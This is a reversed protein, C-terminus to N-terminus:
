VIKKILLNKPFNNLRHCKMHDVVEVQQQTETLLIHMHFVNKYFYHLYRLEYAKHM